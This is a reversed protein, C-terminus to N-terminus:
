KEWRFVGTLRNKWHFSDLKMHVTNFGRECHIFKGGHTYLGVHYPLGEVRLVLVDFPQPDTKEVWRSASEKAIVEALVEKDQTSSYAEIYSPLVIGLEQEYVLRVLGWCDVGQATRGKEAFPIGVYKNWWGM